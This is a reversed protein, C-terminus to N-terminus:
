YIRSGKNNLVDIGRFADFHGRAETFKSAFRRVPPFSPKELAAITNSM